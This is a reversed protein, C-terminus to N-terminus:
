FRAIAECFSRLFRECPEGIGFCDFPVCFLIPIFPLLLIFFIFPMPRARVTVTEDIAHASFGAAAAALLAAGAALAPANAAGELGQFSRSTVQSGGDEM